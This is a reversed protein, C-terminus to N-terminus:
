NRVQHWDHKSSSIQSSSALCILTNVGKFNESKSYAGCSTLPTLKNKVYAGANRVEACKTKVFSLSFNAVCFTM